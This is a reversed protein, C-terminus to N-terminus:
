LLKRIAADLAEPTTVGWQSELMQGQRTFLFMRPPFLLPGFSSTLNDNGLGVPFSVPIARLFDDIDKRDDDLSIALVALGQKQYRRHIKELMAMESRCPPCWAAWFVLVLPKNRYDAASVTKGNLLKAEFAPLPDGVRPAATATFSLLALLILFAARAGPLSLIM